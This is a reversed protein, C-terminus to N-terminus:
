WVKVFNRGPLQKIFGLMELEFLAAIIESSSYGELRELLEDMHVAQDVHLQDLIKRGLLSAPGFPVSSQVGAGTGNREPAGDAGLRERSADALRRRDAAPLETVVDNWDQVLKAGQKILLNPGWSMKSTINGPVAFVERGQDIALRATIASGSYQAGEVVLVGASMGSIIRNRIPFNQPYAPAGMPFESLVLGRKAIEDALKANEAPYIVDVGCGFVAITAGGAGLAGRHAATDIGRAMGSVITLGATALDAALRETVTVGYPTPRRTGVVALMLSGLLEVRGRAFLLIPPDFIERLRPPYRPDSIAVLAVGKALMKQHQLAADEFTCGSAISQAVAGSVGAAELESRSARFVAQPSGYREILQGAKRAGLGPVLRLALWHLEEERSPNPALM